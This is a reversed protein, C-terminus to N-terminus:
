TAPLLHDKWQGDILYRVEFTDLSPNRTYLLEVEYRIFLSISLILSRPNTLTLFSVYM